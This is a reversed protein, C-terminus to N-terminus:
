VVGGGYWAAGLLAGRENLVLHVPVSELLPRLRGVQFFHELFVAQLDDNWIRPPVGGGIFVGGTAKLKLALNAAEMALYRAFLRLTEVCIPHGAVAGLSIAAAPDQYEMNEEVEAPATMSKVDRLFRYMQHIGPGSVVREWSVRGYKKELFLLLTCDFEDRPAFGAHGGETAFPHLAVGDWYLGAEGLGTGPAIIAANGTAPSTGWFITQVDSPTLAALGYAYAELDNLLFVEPISMAQSLAAVEINWGLNTAKAKGGQVPGAFAISLRAPRLGNGVFHRVAEALSGFSKSPYVAERVIALVGGRKEFLALATKTGGVDAALLPVGELLPTRKPFAIPLLPQHM